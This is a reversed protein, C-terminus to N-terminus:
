RIQLPGSRQVKGRREVRLVAVPVVEGGDLVDLRRGLDEVTTVYHQGVALLVDRRRIGARDAPGGREVETVLLGRARRLRLERAIDEPLPYVQLGLRTRALAAGDPTARAGLRLTRRVTDGGRRLTLSLDEGPQGDILAIDLDIRQRVPEGNVALVVDGARIGAAEAPSGTLVSTV